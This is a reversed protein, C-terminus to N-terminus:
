YLREGGREGSWARWGKLEGGRGEGGWAGGGGGEVWEEMWDGGGRGEKVGEGAVRNVRKRLGGRRGEGGVAM